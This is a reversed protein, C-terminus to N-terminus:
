PNSNRSLTLYKAHLDKVQIDLFTESDDNIIIDDAHKLRETRSVQASLITEVQKQPVKDRQCTREIQTKESVDVVLIRNCLGMLNNEILLPAVLLCYPSTTQRIQEILSQHILPHLLLNLWEKTKSDSFIKERLAARNLNGDPLLISSGFKERIKELGISGRKVVDRAIIDADVVDIGEKAFLNAVTTKGSGIGGTLGIIM